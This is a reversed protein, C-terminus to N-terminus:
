FEPFNPALIGLKPADCQDSFHDLLGLQFYVVPVPLSYQEMHNVYLWDFLPGAMAPGAPVRAIGIIIHNFWNYIVLSIVNIYSSWPIYAYLTLQKSLWLTLTLNLRITYQFLVLLMTSCKRTSFEPESKELILSSKPSNGALDDLWKM